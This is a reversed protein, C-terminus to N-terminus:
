FTSFTRELKSNSYVYTVVTRVVSQQQVVCIGSPCRFQGPGKGIKGYTDLVEGKAFDFVQFRHNSAGDATNRFAAFQVPSTRPQISALKQLCIHTQFSEGLDVRHM